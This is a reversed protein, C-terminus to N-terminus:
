REARRPLMLALIAMVVGLGACTLFAAQFGSTSYVQSGAIAVVIAGLVAVGM